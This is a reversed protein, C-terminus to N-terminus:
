FKGFHSSIQADEIYSLSTKLSKIAFLKSSKTKRLLDEKLCDKLRM